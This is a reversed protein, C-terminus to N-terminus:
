LDCVFKIVCHQISYVEGYDFNSNVVENTISVSQVSPTCAKSIAVISNLGMNFILPTRTWIQISSEFRVHCQKVHNQILKYFIAVEINLATDFTVPAGTCILIAPHSLVYM